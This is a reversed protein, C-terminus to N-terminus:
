HLQVRYFVKSSNFKFGMSEYFKQAAENDHDTTWELRSCGKASGIERLKEMLQRGIGRDRHSDTVYLEKLYLSPTIGAAPWLFSYTALGVTETQDRALLVFAIPSPQFLLARIQETRQQLPEFTTCGYFREVEELLAAIAPVDEIHAHTIDIV